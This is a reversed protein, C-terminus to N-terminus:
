VEMIRVDNGAGAAIGYINSSKKLDFAQMTGAAIKLGNATTVDSGGVFIDSGSPAQVAIANRESKTSVSLLVATAGVTVSVGQVVRDQGEIQAQGGMM